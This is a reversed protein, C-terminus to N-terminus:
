QLVQISEVLVPQSTSVSSYNPDLKSLTNDITYSSYQITSKGKLRYDLESGDSTFATNGYMNKILFSGNMEFDKHTQIYTGALQENNYVLGDWRFNDEFVVNGLLVLIGYGQVDGTFKIKGSTSSSKIYLVEPEEETGFTQDGDITLTGSNKELYSVRPDGASVLMNGLDLVRSVTGCFKEFETDSSNKFSFNSPASCDEPPTYVWQGCNRRRGGTCPTAVYNWSGSSSCTDDTFTEVPTDPLRGVWNTTDAHTPEIGVRIPGSDFNAASLFLDTTGDESMPTLCGQPNGCGNQGYPTKDLASMMSDPTLEYALTGGGGYVDEICGGTVAFIDAPAYTISHPSGPSVLMQFSKPAGNIQYNVKVFAKNDKDLSYSGDGDTNDGVNVAYFVNKYIKEGGSGDGKKWRYNDSFWFNYRDEASATSGYLSELSQGSVWVHDKIKLLVENIINEQIADNENFDRHLVTTSESVMTRDVAISVIATLGALILMGALLASGQINKSVNYLRM